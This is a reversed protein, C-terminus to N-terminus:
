AFSCICNWSDWNYRLKRNPEWQQLWQILGVASTDSDSSCSSSWSSPAIRVAGPAKIRCSCNRPQGFHPNLHTAVNIPSTTPQNLLPKNTQKNTQKTQNSKIQNSKIQDSRIQDSRIQDSRIQNSKIQNTIIIIIIIIIIINKTFTFNNERCHPWRWKKTLKWSTPFCVTSAWLIWTYKGVNVM